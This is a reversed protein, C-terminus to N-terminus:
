LTKRFQTMPRKIPRANWLFRRFGWVMQKCCKAWDSRKDIRHWIIKGRTKIPWHSSLFPNPNAQLDLPIKAWGHSKRFIWFPSNRKCLNVLQPYHIASIETGGSGDVDWRRQQSPDGHLRVSESGSSCGPSERGRGAVQARPMRRREM